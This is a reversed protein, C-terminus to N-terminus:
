VRSSVQYINKANMPMNHFKCAENRFISFLHFLPRPHAMNLECNVQGSTDREPFHQVSDASSWSGNKTTKCCSDPSSNHDFSEVFKKRDVSTVKADNSTTVKADSLMTKTDSSVKRDNSDFKKRPDTAATTTSTSSPSHSKPREDSTNQRRIEKM